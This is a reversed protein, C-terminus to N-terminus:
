HATSGGGGVPTVDLARALDGVLTVMRALDDADAVHEERRV